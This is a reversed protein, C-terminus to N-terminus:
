KVKHNIPSYALNYPIIKPHKIDNIQIIFYALGTIIALSVVLFEIDKNYIKM